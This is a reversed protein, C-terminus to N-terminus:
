NSLISTKEVEKWKIEFDKEIKSISKIREQKAESNEGRNRMKLREGLEKM